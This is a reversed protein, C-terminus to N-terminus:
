AKVVEFMSKEEEKTFEDIIALGKDTAIGRLFTIFLTKYIDLFSFKLILSSNGNFIMDMEEVVLVSLIEPNLDKRILGEDMGKKFFEVSKQIKLSKKEIHRQNIEPFYKKIDEIFKKNVKQMGELDTRYMKLLAEFLNSSNELIQRIQEDKRHEFYLTCETILEKKDKFYEYITRKSMGLHSAIDDMTIGKIGYDAFLCAAREIINEKVETNTNLAM